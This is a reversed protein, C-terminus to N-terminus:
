KLMIVSMMRGCSAGEKRFSFYEEVRCSTCEGPDSINEEKLGAEQLQRVNIKALDLYYREGRRDLGYEFFRCFEQGVEYCCPRIAPGFAACLDTPQVRCKERMFQVATRALGERTGRWGAHVLGIGRGALDYLFIPLCDATFVALPVNQKSTVLADTASLATEYSLAGKGRDAEGVLRIGSAHVQQACTLDKYSIGVEELFARRNELSAHSDGSSLSMNHPRRSVAFVVKPHAVIV